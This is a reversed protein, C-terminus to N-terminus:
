WSAEPLRTVPLLRTLGAVCTHYAPTSLLPVCMAIAQEGLCLELRIGSVLVRVSWLAVLTVRCMDDVAFVDPSRLLTITIISATCSWSPVM